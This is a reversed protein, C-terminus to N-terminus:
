SIEKLIGTPKEHAHPPVPELSINLSDTTVKVQRYPIGVNDLMRKAAITHPRYKHTDSLYIIETIWSQIIAKTCENCPVLTTYLTCWALNDSSNLIANLEAHCVYAFKTEEFPGEKKRSFDDDDCWKPLWNYWIGIIKKDADVICAWVQRTPDKSRQSSLVAIGM